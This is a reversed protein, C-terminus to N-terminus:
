DNSVAGPRSGPARFPEFLLATERVDIKGTVAATILAIRYEQLREIAAKIKAVISDINATAADLFDVITRQEDLPPAPIRLKRLDDQSLNPQGGGVSHAILTPRRMQLWYYVFWTDFHRPEALAACAQNVTAAIGLIGLRGITAGYM